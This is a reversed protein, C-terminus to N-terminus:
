SWKKTVTVNICNIVRCFLLDLLFLTVLPFVFIYIFFSSRLLTVGGWFSFTTMLLKWISDSIPLHVKRVIDKMSKQVKVTNNVQSDIPCDCAEWNKMWFIKFQTWFVFLVKVPKFRCPPLPNIVLNDNQYGKLHSMFFFNHCKIYLPDFM